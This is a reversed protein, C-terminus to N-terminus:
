LSTLTAAVLEELSRATDHLSRDPGVTGSLSLVSIARESRSRLTEAATEEVSGAIIVVATSPPTLELLSSVTKGELSTRDFSGEGTIVLSVEDLAGALDTAKAILEFGSCLVGGLAALAGGLGGAAGSRDLIGVDLGFRELLRRRQLSLRDTLEEVQEPSAGKQSAFLRAADVFRTTVDTAVILEVGSLDIGAETIVELAGTGGDTTASGGCGVIIRQAGSEAAAVILQGVGRTSARLVEDGQPHPLLARGAADAMEIVATGRDAGLRFGAIIPEGLPGEVTTSVLGGGLVEGFGEGGDRLPRELAEWGQRKAGRAIAHAADLASLTGRFKDPAALLRM